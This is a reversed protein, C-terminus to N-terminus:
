RRVVRATLTMDLLGSVAQGNCMAPRFTVTELWREVALRNQTGVIGTIKLTRVDARGLSDVM